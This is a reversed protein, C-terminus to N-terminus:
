SKRALLENFLEIYRQAVSSAAFRRRVSEHLEERDVNQSLAWQLGDAISVADKYRAIYGDKLHTVIDSKGGRGFTVPLCGSAQGEILTGPLTEYLSTSLVIKAAAYINRLLKPDSVTGLYVHPFRLNDLLSRDRISGFFVALSDRAMEPRNDFVYNLADIAYNLGKIPDDLRAAGMVIINQGPNFKMTAVSGEPQTSFSNVPFANPIVRVDANGLLSSRQARRGLWHSVAVFTVPISDYLSKKRKWIRHSLDRDSKSRLFQCKGCSQEFGKCEYSHHCIGSLCWMDHMTWVIPKGMQGIKRIGKLSLMGQNIWNLVVVDADKVWPHHDIRAGTNAISVKFLNSRSMGNAAAICLREGMFRLGRLGRSSVIGVNPDDSLKTYVLMRADVGEDRLARMLRTTVVSAGGLM